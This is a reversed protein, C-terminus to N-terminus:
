VFGGTPGVAVWENRDLTDQLHKLIHHVLVTKGTGAPGTIFLNKGAKALEVARAQEANLEEDHNEDYGLGSSPERRRKPLVPSSIGQKHKGLGQGEVHGMNQMMKQAVSSYVPPTTGNFISNSTAADPKSHKSSPETSPPSNSSRKAPLFCNVKGISSEFSSDSPNSSSAQVKTSGRDQNIFNEADNRLVFGKFIAGSFGDTQAKCEDWSLYIGPIRGRAVAYFKKKQGKGM